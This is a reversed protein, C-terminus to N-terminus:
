QENHLRAKGLLFLMVQRPDAVDTRNKVLQQKSIPVGMFDTFPLLDMGGDVNWPLADFYQVDPIGVMHEQQTRASWAIVLEIRIAGFSDSASRRGRFHGLFGRLSCLRFKKPMSPLNM